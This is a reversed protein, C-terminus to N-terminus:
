VHARGIKITQRARDPTMAPQPRLAYSLAFATAIGSRSRKAIRPKKNQPSGDWREGWQVLRGDIYNKNKDAESM